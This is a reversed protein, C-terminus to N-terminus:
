RKWVTVKWNDIGHAVSAGVQGTSTRWFGFRMPTGQSSFDPCAEGAHCAPGDSLTFDTARLSATNQSV